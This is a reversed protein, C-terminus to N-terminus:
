KGDRGPGPPVRVPPPKTQSVPLTRVRHIQGRIEGSPNNVTAVQVYGSGKLLVAAQAGTLEMSGRTAATCPSCLAAVHAGAVGPVGTHIAASTAPSSLGSYTLRWVLRWAFVGGGRRSPNIQTRVLVGTFQGRANTPVAAAPAPVVQSSSLQANLKYGVSPVPTVVAAAALSAATLAVLGAATLAVGFRTVKRHIEHKM